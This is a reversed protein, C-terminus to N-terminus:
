NVLCAYRKKIGLFTAIRCLAYVGCFYVNESSVCSIQRQFCQFHAPYQRIKGPCCYFSSSCHIHVAIKVPRLAHRAGHGYGVLVAHYCVHVAPRPLLVLLVAVEHALVQQVAVVLARAPYYAANELRAAGVRVRNLLIAHALHNVLRGAGAGVPLHLADDLHRHHYGALQRM